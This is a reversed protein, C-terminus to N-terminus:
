SPSITKFIIQCWFQLIIQLIAIKIIDQNLGSMLSCRGTISLLTRVRVNALMEGHNVATHGCCTRVQSQCYHTTRVQINLQSKIKVLRLEHWQGDCVTITDNPFMVAARWSGTSVEWYVGGSVFQVLYYSGPGGYAFFLLGTTLETRM